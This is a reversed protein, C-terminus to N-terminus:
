AAPGPVAIIHWVLGAVALYLLVKNEPRHLGSVIMALIYTTLVYAVFATRLSIQISAIHM